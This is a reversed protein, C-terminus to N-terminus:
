YNLTVTVSDSYTGVASDNVGGAVAAPIQGYITVPTFATGSNGNCGSCTTDITVTNATWISTRAANSYLQYQLLDGSFTPSGSCAGSTCAMARNGNGQLHGGGDITIGITQSGSGMAKMCTGSITATSGIAAGYVDFSAFTMTSVSVTCSMAARATGHALLVAAAFGFLMALLRLAKM